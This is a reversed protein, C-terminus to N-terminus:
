FGALVGRCTRTGRLSTWRSHKRVTIPALSGGQEPWQFVFAAEGGAEKRPVREERAGDRHSRWGEGGAREKELDDALNNPLYLRRTGIVALLVLLHNDLPGWFIRPLHLNINIVKHFVDLYQPPWLGRPGREESHGPVQVQQEGRRWASRTGNRVTSVERPEGELRGKGPLRHFLRGKEQRSTAQRETRDTRRETEAATELHLPSRIAQLWVQYLAPLPSLYHLPGAQFPPLLSRSCGGERPSKPPVVTERCGKQMAHDQHLPQAQLQSSM